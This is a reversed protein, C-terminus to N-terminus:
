HAYLVRLRLLDLKARGYYLLRGALHRLPGKGVAGGRVTCATPYAALSNGKYTSKWGGGESGRMVAKRTM